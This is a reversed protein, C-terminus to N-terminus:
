SPEVSTNQQNESKNQSLIQEVSEMNDLVWSSKENLKKKLNKVESLMSLLDHFFKSGTSLFFGTLICGFISFCVNFTPSYMAYRAWLQPFSEKFLDFLNANSVLAVGIGILITILQINSQRKTEQGMDKKEHCLDPFQLKIFDSIKETILSLILLFMVLNIIKDMNGGM